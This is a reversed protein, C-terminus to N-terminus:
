QTVTSTWTVTKRENRIMFSFCCRSGKTDHEAMVQKTKPKGGDMGEFISTVAAVYLKLKIEENENKIWYM